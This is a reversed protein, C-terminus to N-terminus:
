ATSRVYRKTIFISKLHPGGWPCLSFHLFWMFHPNEKHLCPDVFHFGSIWKGLPTRFNSIWCHRRDRDRGSSFSVWCINLFFFVNPTWHAERTSFMDNEFLFYINSAFAYWKRLPVVHNLWFCKMKSFSICKWGFVYWKRFPFVHNPKQPRAWGPGAKVLFSKATPCPGALSKCFCFNAGPACIEIKHGLRSVTTFARSSNYVRPFQQLRAPVQLRAPATTFACNHKQYTKQISKITKQCWKPMVKAHNKSWKRIMKPNNKYWKPIIKADNQSWKPMLKADSQSKTTLKPM